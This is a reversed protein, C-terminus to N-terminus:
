IERRRGQHGDWVVWAVPMGAGMGGMGAGAKDSADFRLAYDEGLSQQLAARADTDLAMGRLAVEFRQARWQPDVPHADVFDSLWRSTGKRRSTVSRALLIRELTNLRQVRWLEDYSELPEGLLWLDVLQKQLKQKILPKVVADFFKRDKHYLFFNLEHCAMENYHVRRQEDSLKHWQAIFSFKEWESNQLITGYLRYVDAISAYTQVRRTRPDGLVKKENAPVVEVRQTQALRINADFASKLRQDRVLLESQPVVLERSDASNIQVALVTLNSYGRLQEIPVSVQGDEIAYNASIM